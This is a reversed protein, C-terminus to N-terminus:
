YEVNRAEEKRDTLEFYPEARLHDAGRSAIAYTLGYAKLHDTQTLDMPILLYDAAKAPVASVCLLLSATLMRRWGRLRRHLTSLATPPKRRPM